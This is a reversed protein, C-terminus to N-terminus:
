HVYYQNSYNTYANFLAPDAFDLRTSCQNTFVNYDQRPPMDVRNYDGLYTASRNSGSDPVDYSDTPQWVHSYGNGVLLGSIISGVNSWKITEAFTPQQGVPVDHDPMQVKDLPTTNLVAGLENAGFSDFASNWGAHANGGSMAYTALFAGASAGVAGGTLYRSFNDVGGWFSDGGFGSAGIANLGGTFFGGVAGSTGGTM